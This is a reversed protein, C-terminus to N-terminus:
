FHFRFLKSFRPDSLPFEPLFDKLHFSANYTLNLKLRLFLSYQISKAKDISVEDSDGGQM